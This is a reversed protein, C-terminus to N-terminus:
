RETCPYQGTRHLPVAKSPASTSDRETCLYQGARHLPVSGSPDPTAIREIRSSLISRYSLNTYVSSVPMQLCYIGSDIFVLYPCRCVTSVAIQLCQICADVFLLYPCRCVSSVPMQLCYIGSDIFVLYPCRCVTSVAIQLFGSPIGFPPASPIFKTRCIYNPKGDAVLKRLVFKCLFM